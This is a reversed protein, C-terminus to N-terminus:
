RKVVSTGDAAKVDVDDEMNLGKLSAEFRLKM